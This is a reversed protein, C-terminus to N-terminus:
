NVYYNVNVSFGCRRSLPAKPEEKGASADQMSAKGFLRNQIFFCLFALACFLIIKLVMGVGDAARGFTFFRMLLAASGASLLPRWVMSFTLGACIKRRMGIYSCLFNFAEAIMIVYVYGVAGFRPLLLMVLLISLLSDAINVVMSYFQLGIGKLMADTVHDLYMLPVLPALLRIFSGAESSSYLCSGLEEGFLLFGAGICFAFALTTSLSEATMHKLRKKEDRVLSQTYEPVLLSAFSSLLAMPYVVIPFAMSHLAGYSALAGSRDSGAMALAVPILMHEVTVLLSRAYAGGAIPVSIELMPRLGPKKRASDPCRALPHRLYDIRCAILLIICSLCEGIMGGLVLAVCAYTVGYPIMRGLLFVTLAIKIWQEAIGVAANRAARRVAIFYGSFVSSLSIPVLGISLLRLSPLTRLDHLVYRSLFPAFSFLALSAISGCVLAYVACRKMMARAYDGDGRSLADSVLRTLALGVGSTALTLFFGYLSMTLTFLGMGEAGVRSVTYANFSVSVTRMFLAAAALTAGNFLFSKKGSNVKSCRTKRGHSLSTQNEFKDKGKLTQFAFETVWVNIYSNGHFIMSKKHRIEQM